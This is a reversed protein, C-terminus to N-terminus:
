CQVVGGVQVLQSAPALDALRLDAEGERAASLEAVQADATEALASVEAVLPPPHITTSVTVVADQHLAALNGAAHRGPRQGEPSFVGPRQLHVAPM